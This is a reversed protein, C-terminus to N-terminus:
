SEGHPILRPQNVEYPYLGHLLKGDKGLGQSAAFFLRKKDIGMNLLKDKKGCSVIYVMDEPDDDRYETPLFTTVTATTTYVRYPHRTLNKILRAEKYQRYLAM